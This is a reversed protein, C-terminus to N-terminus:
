ESTSCLRAYNALIIKPKRSQEADVFNFLREVQLRKSRCTFRNNWFLSIRQHVSKFKGTKDGTSRITSGIPEGGFTM